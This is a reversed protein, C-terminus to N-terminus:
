IIFACDASFQYNSHSKLGCYYLSVLYLGMQEVAGHFSFEASVFAVSLCQVSHQQHECDFDITILGLRNQVSDNKTLQRVKTASRICNTPIM